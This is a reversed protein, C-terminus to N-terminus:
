GSFIERCFKRSCSHNFNHSYNEYLTVHLICQKTKCYVFGVERFLCVLDLICTWLCFIKCVGDITMPTNNVHVNLGPPWSIGEYAFLSCKLELDLDSSVVFFSM